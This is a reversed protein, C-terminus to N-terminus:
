QMSNDHENLWKKSHLNKHAYNGKWNQNKGIYVNKASIVDYKLFFICIYNEDFFWNCHYM